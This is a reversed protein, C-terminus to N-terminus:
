KHSQVRGFNKVFVHLPVSITGGTSNESGGWPNRITVTGGGPGDPNFGTITFAHRRVFGDTTDGDTKWGNWWGQWELRSSATVAKPPNSEFADRLYKHVVSPDNKDDYLNLETSEKGSLLALSKETYGGGDAGEQPTYSGIWAHNDKYKGFAKEMVSAWLGNSGSNNYLGMEAETPAKVTIPENKAGPFTVTYTGDNNDKIMNRISEPNSKAVAALAAVFYCNGIMGQKIADPKIGDPPYLDRNGNTENRADATRSMAYSMNNVLKARDGDNLISFAHKGIDEKTLGKEGGIWNPNNGIEDVLKNLKQLHQKDEASINAGNLAKEIDNKKLVGDPGAFRKINQDAWIKSAYIDRVKAEHEKVAAPYKDVDDGTIGKKSFFSDNGSLNHLQDFGKYMAALVQAQEGKFSPNELAKALQEKTVPAGDPNIQKLVDKAVAPFREASIPSIPKFPEVVDKRPEIHDKPPVVKDKSPGSNNEASEPTKDKPPAVDRPSVDKPPAVDRPPVDKPPAIDRPPVDKPPASKNEAPQPSKDKPSASNRQPTEPEQPKAPREEIRANAPEKVPKNENPKSNDPKKKASKDAGPSSDAPLAGGATTDPNSEDRGAINQEPTKSIDKPKGSKDLDQTRVLSGNSKDWLNKDEFITGPNFLIYDLNPDSKKLRELASGSENRDSESTKGKDLEPFAQISGDPRNRNPGVKFIIREREGYAEEQLPSLKGREARQIEEFSEPNSLGRTQEDPRAADKGISKAADQLSSSSESDQRLSDMLASSEEAKDGKSSRTDQADM